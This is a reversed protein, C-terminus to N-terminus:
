QIHSRDLRNEVVRCTVGDLGILLQKCQVEALKLEGRLVIGHHSISIRAGAFFDRRVVVLVLLDAIQTDADREVVDVQVLGVLPRTLQDGLQRLPRQFQILRNGLTGDGTRVRQGAARGRHSEACQRLQRAGHLVRQLTQMPLGPAGGLLGPHQTVCGFIHTAYQMLKGGAHQLRRIGVDQRGNLRQLRHLDHVALTCFRRSCIIIRCCQRQRRGLFLQLNMRCCHSRRGDRHGIDRCWGTGKAVVDVNGIGDIRIQERDELFFGLFQQRLETGGQALPDSVRVVATGAALDQTRQVRELAARTQGTRQAKPFHRM